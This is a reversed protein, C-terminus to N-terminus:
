QGLENSSHDHGDVLHALLIGQLFDFLQADEERVHMKRESSFNTSYLGVIRYECMKTVRCVIKIFRFLFITQQTLWAVLIAM